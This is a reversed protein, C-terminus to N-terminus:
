IETYRLAQETSSRTVMKPNLRVSLRTDADAINKEYYVKLLYMYLLKM